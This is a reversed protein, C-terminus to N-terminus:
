QGPESTGTAVPDRLAHTTARYKKCHPGPFSM